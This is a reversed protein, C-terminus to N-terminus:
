PAPPDRNLMRELEVDFMQRRIGEVSLDDPDLVVPEGKWEIDDSM